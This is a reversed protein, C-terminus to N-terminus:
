GRHRKPAKPEGWLINKVVDLRKQRRPRGEEISRLLSRASARISGARSTFLGKSSFEQALRHAIVNKHLAEGKQPSGVLRALEEAKEAKDLGQSERLLTAIKSSFQTKDTETSAILEDYERIANVKKAKGIFKKGLYEELKQFEAEQEPTLERALKRSSFNTNALFPEFEKGKKYAEKIKTISGFGFKEADAELAEKLMTATRAQFGDPSQQLKILHDHLLVYQTKDFGQGGKATKLQKKLQSHLAMFPKRSHLTAEQLDQRFKGGPKFMGELSETLNKQYGVPNMRKKLPIKKITDAYDRKSFSVANQLERKIDSVVDGLHGGYRVEDMEAKTMSGLLDITDQPLKLEKLTKPNLQLAEGKVMKEVQPRLNASIYDTAEKESTFVNEPGVKRLEKM